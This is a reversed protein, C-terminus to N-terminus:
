VPVSEESKGAWQDLKEMVADFTKMSIDPLTGGFADAAMQFGKQVAAKITDLNELDNGGLAIAMSVIRDSTKEVGFYGDEGILEQAEEPTINALDITTDGAAIQTSIGQEKFTDVIQQRVDPTSSSRLPSVSKMTYTYEPIQNKQQSLTVTDAGASSQAGTADPETKTKGFTRPYQYQPAKQFDTTKNIM